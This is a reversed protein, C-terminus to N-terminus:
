PCTAGTSAISQAIRDRDHLVTARGLPTVVLVRAASRGGAAIVNGRQDCIVATTVPPLGTVNGRGLGSASFSFYDQMGPTSISVRDDLAEHRRLIAEGADHTVLGDPDLFVIWGDEFTGGCDPDPDMANASACISVNTKARAAESRALYFTSHLDNAAATMRSNATFDALNPIGYAIVIGVIATTILLEYLTFGTQRRSTIGGSM